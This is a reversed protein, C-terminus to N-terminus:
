LTISELNSTCKVSKPIHIYPLFSYSCNLLIVVTLCTIELLSMDVQKIEESNIYDSDSIGFKSLSEPSSMHWNGM